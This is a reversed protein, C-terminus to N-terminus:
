TSTGPPIGRSGHPSSAPNLASRPMASPWCIKRSLVCPPWTPPWRRSTSRASRGPLCQAPLLVRRVSPRRMAPRRRAVFSEKMDPPSEGGDAQGDAEAGPPLWGRGGPVDAYQKKVESPLAFFERAQARVQARLGDPVGHGTILFFGTTRLAADVQAAVAARATEDGAHWPTLDIVPVPM